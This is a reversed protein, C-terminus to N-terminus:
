LCLSSSVSLLSYTNYSSRVGAATLQQWVWQHMSIWIMPLLGIILTRQTMVQMGGIVPFRDTKSTMEQSNGPYELNISQNISQCMSQSPVNFYYLTIIYTLNNRLQQARM